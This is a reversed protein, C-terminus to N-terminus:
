QSRLSDRWRKLKEEEKDLQNLDNNYNKRESSSKANDMDRAINVQEVQNRIYEVKINFRDLSDKVNSLIQQTQTVKDTALKISTRLSDFKVNVNQTKSTQVTNFILLGIIIVLAALLIKQENAM